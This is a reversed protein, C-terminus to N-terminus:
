AKERLEKIIQDMKDNDLKEYYKKKISCMPANICAGMCEVEELSFLGDETKEGMKIGLTNELHKVLDKSGCLECSLNTCVEIPFKAQPERKCMTYFTAVEFIAIHPEGLHDAIAELQADSVWGEGLDQVAHIALLAASRKKDAPFKAVAKDIEALMEPTLVNEKTM